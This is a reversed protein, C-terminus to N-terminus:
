LLIVVAAIYSSKTYKKRYKKEKKGVPERQRYTQRYTQSAKIKRHMNEKKSEKIM